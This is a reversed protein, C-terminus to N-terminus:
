RHSWMVALLFDIHLLFVHACTERERGGGEWEEKNESPKAESLPWSPDRITLLKRLERPRWLFLQCCRRGSDRKGVCLPRERDVCFHSFVM